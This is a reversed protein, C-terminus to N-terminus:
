EVSVVVYVYYTVHPVKNLKIAYPNETKEKRMTGKQQGNRRSRRVTRYNSIENESFATIRFPFHTM